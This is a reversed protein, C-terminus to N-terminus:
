TRLNNRRQEADSRLVDILLSQLSKLQEELEKVRRSEWRLRKQRSNRWGWLWSTMFGLIWGGFVFWLAEFIM